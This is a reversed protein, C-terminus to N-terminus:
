RVWGARLGAIPSTSCATELLELTLHRGNAKHRALADAVLDACRTETLIFTPANVSVGVDLGADRWAHLADLSQDLAIVFLRELETEGLAPLFAAPMLLTGGSRLRALAEFKVPVGSPLAIVPQFHMEVAGADIGKTSAMRVGYASVATGGGGQDEIRRLGPGVIRRMHELTRSRSTSAFYGPWGAYINIM